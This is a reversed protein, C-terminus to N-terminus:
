ESEVLSPKHVLRLSGSEQNLVMPSLVLRGSEPESEVRGSESETECESESERVRIRM